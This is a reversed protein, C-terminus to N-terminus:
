ETSFSRLNSIAAKKGEGHLHRLFPPLKLILFYKLQIADNKYQSFKLICGCSAYASIAISSLAVKQGRQRIFAFHLAFAVAPGAM